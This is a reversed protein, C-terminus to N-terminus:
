LEILAAGSVFGAGFASIRRCDRMRVNKTLAWLKFNGALPNTTLASSKRSKM